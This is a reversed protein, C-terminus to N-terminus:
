ENQRLEGMNGYYHSYNKIRNEYNRKSTHYVNSVKELLNAPSYSTFDSSNFINKLNDLKYYHPQLWQVIMGEAIIDMTEYDLDEVFEYEVTDEEKEEEESDNNEVVKLQRNFLDYKCIRNFSSCVSDLYSYVKEDRDEMLPLDYDTIKRLFINVIESCSTAM